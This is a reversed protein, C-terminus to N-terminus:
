RFMNAVDAEVQQYGAGAIELRHALNQLSEEVQLHLMQWEAAIGQFAQSASGQWAAELQQVRGMIFTVESRLRESGAQVEAKTSILSESDVTFQAM